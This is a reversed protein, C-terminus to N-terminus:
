VGFFAKLCLWLKTKVVRAEAGDIMENLSNGWIVQCDNFGTATFAPMPAISLTEPTIGFLLLTKCLLTEKLEEFRAPTQEYNVIAVDGMNLHCAQLITTLFKLHEDPLFAHDKYAVVITIQQQNKGLSAISVEKAAPIAKKETASAPTAVAVLSKTYLAALQNPTLAINNISMGAKLLRL